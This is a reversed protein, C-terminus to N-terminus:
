LSMDTSGAVPIVLLSPDYTGYSDARDDERTGKPTRQETQKKAGNQGLMM